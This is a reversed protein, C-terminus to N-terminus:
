IGVATCVIRPHPLPVFQVTDFTPATNLEQEGRSIAEEHEKIRILNDNAKKILCLNEFAENDLCYIREPHLPVSMNHEAEIPNLIAQLLKRTKELICNSSNMKLQKTFALGTQLQMWAWKHVFLRHELFSIFGGDSGGRGMGQSIFSLTKQFNNKDEEVGGDTGIGPTDILRIKHGDRLTIIYAKPWKTQSKGPEFCEDKSKKGIFVKTQVLKGDADYEETNGGMQIAEDFIPHKLYNVIANILTSKGVGIEGLLLTLIGKSKMRELEKNLQIKAFHKFEMGHADMDNCRFSFEEVPTAGCACYFHTMPANEEKVFALTQGCDDCGWLLDNNQCKGGYGECLPCPLSCPETKKRPVAGVETRQSNEIRAFCIQLKQAEETVCDATLLKHGRMKVLRSGINPFGDLELIGQPLGGYATADDDSLMVDLDVFACSKGRKAMQYLQGLCRRYFKEGNQQSSLGVDADVPPITRSESYLLVFHLTSSASTSSGGNGLLVDTLRRNEANEAM